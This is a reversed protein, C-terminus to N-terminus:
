GAFARDRGFSKNNKSWYSSLDDVFSRSAFLLTPVCLFVARPRVVNTRHDHAYALPTVEHEPTRQKHKPTERGTIQQRRRRTGAASTLYLKSM